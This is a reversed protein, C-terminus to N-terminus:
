TAPVTEKVNGTRKLVGWHQLEGKLAKRLSRFLVVLMLWRYILRQPILWFLKWPKERAFAFAIGATLADVLIFILYYTGIKEANGTLLGVIMLLDAIPTFLPIIYKFLLIDPLAILGLSRQRTSFIMEKHKWFVQMVGFSWRFRQKMFQKVTEPAETYAVAESENDVTYGARLLRITLDSDEALTDSTFAGVELMAQRDFAGIAGPVVTIANLYGFARRDFNQGITYEISQWKTLINVENGVKVTGAVAGTKRDEVFFNRMLLRVANHALRTDADICVVYPAQTKAIGYNLASAKGGNPKTLVTVQPHHEFAASVKAFTSDTSGDDVFIINFHPYDCHLLNEISRVANIEENYAPVIISVLPMEAPFVFKRKRERRRQLFALIGTILLRIGGAILFIVFLSEMMAGAVYAIEALATNVQLLWYGSGPPVPPMIEDRKKGLLDAVTTFKYGRSQFYRIIKGTAEVTATRDGGADHLLIINGNVGVTDELDDNHIRKEYVRVVRNLISDGNLTPIEEKQWDEPDISEGVTIYNKQRSLWVPVLEENKTPESDANFPARFMITSHGTICEILLRTLDMELNARRIPVKAMNPHFFTHNGIEHGERYIRRVLPINNEAEIGVLFFGAPVHYYALTDLIQRTYEPDPGDDFTLVLKRKTIDGYKKIVYTSPLKVYTEESILMDVSDVESKIFGSSPQAIIDLIEGDGTYDPISGAPVYNLGFFNFHRLSTRTMPRDYFEWLRSDESGLRWLATGALQYETAFRLTNFNTAADTFHVEHLSDESDYYQYHLNYTDNDFSVEAGSERANALAQQYSYTVVKKSKDKWDYGYGAMGLIIKEPGVQGSMKDLAAQIWRQSSIPGPKTENHHEDYAMLILYDNYQALAKFNYDENFPIVDQTVLFNQAHLKEYLEKQFGVITADSTEQLEEFDVNVGAFDYKKLLRVLDNILRQRKFPNTLIRHVADGRFVEKYANSLIPMVEVKAARILGLARNDINTFLTDANPDIFFWEPIVLNIKSINKELSFFSQPDWTVYFAARIGVSDNFLSSRSLDISSDFHSDHRRKSWRADIAKRFGSYQRGLASQRYAPVDGALVKKMVRSDLPITPKFLDNQTLAVTLAVVGLVLLFAVLRFAWKFRQWRTKTVTQFIQSQNAM